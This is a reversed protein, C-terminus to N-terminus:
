SQRRRIPRHEARHPRERAHRRHGRGQGLWFLRHRALLRSVQRGAAPRPGSRSHPLLVHPIRNFTACPFGGCSYARGAGANRRFARHRTEASPGLEYCLHETLYQREFASNAIQARARRPRAAQRHSAPAGDLFAKWATLRMAWVAFVFPLQTFERWATALDLYKQEPNAQRHAIAPDGILLQADATEGPAVYEVKLHHFRELVIRALEASTKSAPDLAVTQIRALSVTHNLYVSYVVRQAGIAIDNAVRYTGAPGELVEMLPVLAVDLNGARLEAALRSPELSTLPGGLAYTLPRANLYSVSGIRLSEKMPVRPLPRTERLEMAKQVSPSLLPSTTM